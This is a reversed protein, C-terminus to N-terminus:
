PPVPGTQRMFRTLASNTAALLFVVIGAIWFIDALNFIGLGIARNLFPSWLFDIIGHPPYLFSLFNGTGAAAFLLAGVKWYRATSLTWIVVWLFCQSLRLVVISGLSGAAASPFARALALVFVLTGVLSLAVTRASLRQRYSLVLLLAGLGFCFCSVFGLERYGQSFALLTQASSGLGVPNVRLVLGLLATATAEQNPQLLLYALLKSGADAVV